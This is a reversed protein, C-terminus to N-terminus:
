RIPRQFLRSLRLVILELNVDPQNRTTSSIEGSKYRRDATVLERIASRCTVGDVSGAQELLKKFPFKNRDMSPFSKSLQNSAKSRSSTNKIAEHAILLRRIQNTIRVKLYAPDEDNDELLQRVEFLARRPNGEIIEDLVRFPNEEALKPTLAQIDDITIERNLAFNSLKRLESELILPNNGIFLALQITAESSISINYSKSIEHIYERAWQTKRSDNGFHQNKKNNEEIVRIQASKSKSIKEIVDDFLKFIQRQPKAIEEYPEYFILHNNPPLELDPTIFSEMFDQIPIQKTTKEYQLDSFLRSVVVVRTSGMFPMTFAHERVLEAIDNTAKKLDDYTFSAQTNDVDLESTLEDLRKNLGYENNGKLLYLM